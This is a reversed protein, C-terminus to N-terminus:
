DSLFVDGSFPSGQAVEWEMDVLDVAYAITEVVSASLDLHEAQEKAQLLTRGLSEFVAQQRNMIEGQSYVLHSPLM